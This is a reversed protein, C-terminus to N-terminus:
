KKSISIQLKNFLFYSLVVPYIFLREFFYVIVIFIFLILLEKNLNKIGPWFLKRFFGFVFIMWFFIGYAALTQTYTNNSWPFKAWKTSAADNYGVGFFPSSQFNEWNAIIQETRGLKNVDELEETFRYFINLREFDFLNTVIFSLLLLSIILFSQKGLSEFNLLYVLLTAVLFIMAGRSSNVIVISIMLGIYLYFKRKSIEGRKYKFVTFATAMSVLYSVININVLNLAAREVGLKFEISDPLKIFGFYILYSIIVYYLGSFIISNEIIDSARKNTDIKTLTMFYFAIFFIQEIMYMKGTQEIFIREYIRIWGILLLPVILLYLDKYKLGKYYIIYFAPLIGFILKSFPVVPLNLQAFIRTTVDLVGLIWFVLIYISFYYLKQKSM